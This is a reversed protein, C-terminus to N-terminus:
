RLLDGPSRRRFAQRHHDAPKERRRLTKMEEHVRKMFRHFHTRVKEKFPLAEFFTDVLYTKGRGVGGWFYLGKVPTM